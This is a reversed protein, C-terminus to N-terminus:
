AGTGTGAVIDFEEHIDPPQSLGKLHQLRDMNQDLIM